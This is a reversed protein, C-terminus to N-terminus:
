KRVGNVKIMHSLRMLVSEVGETTL